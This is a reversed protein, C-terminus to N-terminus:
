GSHTREKPKKDRHDDLRGDRDHKDLRSAERLYEDTSSRNQKDMVGQTVNEHREMFQKTAFQESTYPVSCACQAHNAPSVLVVGSIRQPDGHM